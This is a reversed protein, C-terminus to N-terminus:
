QAEKIHKVVWARVRKFRDEPTEHHYDDNEYEIERILVSAIGFVDALTDPDEPDLQTLDVGRKRGVSGLACHEGDANVLENHILRPEPLADLAELMERLFSQGRKGRIASAVSGRYRILEWNDLDDSYGHRSM